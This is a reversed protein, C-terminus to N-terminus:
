KRREQIRERENPWKYEEVTNIFAVAVNFTHIEITITIYEICLYLEIYEFHLFVRYM